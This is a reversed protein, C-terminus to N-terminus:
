NRLEKNVYTSVFTVIQELYYIDDYLKSMMLGGELLSLMITAVQEGNATVKIDGVTKGESVITMIMARFRTMAEQARIKMEPLADDSEVATNLIPCGGPVDPKEQMELIGSAIAILRDAAHPIGQFQQRLRKGRLTAVYEFALQALEDKDKFHNYIGGRELGTQQVLDAISTGFYGRQNFVIAARRIIMERTREGKTKM